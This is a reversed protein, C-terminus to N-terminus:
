NTALVKEANRLGDVIRSGREEGGYIACGPDNSIGNQRCDLCIWSMDLAYGFRSTVRGFFSLVGMWIKPDVKCRPLTGSPSYAM